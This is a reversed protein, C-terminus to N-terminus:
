LVTRVDWLLQGLYGLFHENLVASHGNLVASRGNSQASHGNPQASRFFGDPKM